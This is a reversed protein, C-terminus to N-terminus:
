LSRQMSPQPLPHREDGSEEHDGGNRNPVDMLRRKEDAMETIPDLIICGRDRDFANLVRCSRAWSNLMKLNLPRVEEVNM